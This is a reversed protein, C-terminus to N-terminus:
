RVVIGAADLAAAVVAKEVTALDKLSIWQGYVEAARTIAVAAHSGATADVRDNLVAVKIRDYTTVDVASAPDIYLGTAVQSGSAGTYEAVVVTGAKYVTASQKLTIVDITRDGNAKSRVHLQDPKNQNVRTM